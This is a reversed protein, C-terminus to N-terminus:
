KAPKFEMLAKEKWNVKVKELTALPTQFDFSARVLIGNIMDVVATGNGSGAVPVYKMVSLSDPKENSSYSFQWSIYATDKKPSLNEIKFRRYIDCEIKGLASQIPLVVSREWVFGKKVAQQPMDPLLKLLQSYLNWEPLNGSLLDSESDITPYGDILALSYRNASTNDALQSSASSDYLESQIKLNKISLELRSKDSLVNGILDCSIDTKKSSSETNTVFACESQYTISYNWIEKDAYNFNLKIADKKALVSTGCLAILMAPFIVNYM